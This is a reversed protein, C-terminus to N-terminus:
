AGDGERTPADADRRKREEGTARIEDLAEGVRRLHSPELAILRMPTRAVVSATRRTKELVAIEGFFNGPGLTGIKEGGRLVDAKGEQIVMFEGAYDGEQIVVEGAPVSSEKAFTAIMAMTSDDLGAFLPIQRLLSLDMVAM